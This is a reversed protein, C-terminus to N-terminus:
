KFYQLLLALSEEELIPGIVEIKRVGRALVERSPILLSDGVHAKLTASSCGFVIRKIGTWYAAGTCM